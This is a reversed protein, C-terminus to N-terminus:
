ARRARWRVGSKTAGVIRRGNVTGTYEAGGATFTIANGNLRGNTIPTTVNGRRISGTFTQFTQKLTIVDRGMRWRGEVRAPVIWLLAKCYTRCDDEVTEQQDPEWDGMEFTNSVVRTGPKMRLIKPRLRENIEPLLFLTVVSANSFNTRFLDARRFAAKRGVGAKRANFRSLEVM